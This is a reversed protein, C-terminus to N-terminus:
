ALLALDGVVYVEPHGEVHLTPLWPSADEEDWLCDGARSRRIGM